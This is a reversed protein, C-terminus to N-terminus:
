DSGRSAALGNEISEDRTVELFGFLFLFEGCVVLWVVICLSVNSLQM